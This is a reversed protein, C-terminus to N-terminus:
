RVRVLLIEEREWTTWAIADVDYTGELCDRETVDAMPEAGSWDRTWRIRDGDLASVVYISRQPTCAGEDPSWSGSWLTHRPESPDSTDPYVFETDIYRLCSRRAGPDPDDPDVKPCDEWQLLDEGLPHNRKVVLRAREELMPVVPYSAEPDTVDLSSVVEYTGELPHVPGCACLSSVGVLLVLRKM